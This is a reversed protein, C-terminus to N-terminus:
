VNIYILPRNYLDDSTPITRGGSWNGYVELTNSVYLVFKNDNCM